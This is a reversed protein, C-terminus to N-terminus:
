GHNAAGKPEKQCNPCWISGRGGIVSRELPTGCNRCPAGRRGYVNLYPTNRYDKGGGLLYDAASIANKEVYYAVTQPIKEALRQWAEEGLVAASTNPHIGCAFLIEDSYINGIGAIRTQDLLLTKIARRSTGFKERLLAEDVDQPEPGLSQMGEPEAEGQAIFWIRGFRRQDIFRLLSGDSLLFEASTHKDQPQEPSVKLLCGTMRLHLILRDGSAFLIQLYKGRRGMGAIQQGEACQARHLPMLPPYLIRAKQVTLGVLQPQLVRRVTEVEPLEPM